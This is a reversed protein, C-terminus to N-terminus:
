MKTEIDVIIKITDERIPQSLIYLLILSIPEFIFVFSFGLQHQCNQIVAKLYTEITRIHTVKSVPSGRAPGNNLCSQRGDNNAICKYESSCATHCDSDSSCEGFPLCMAFRLSSATIFTLQFLSFCTLHFLNKMTTIFFISM